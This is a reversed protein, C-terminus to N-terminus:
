DEIFLLLLGPICQNNKLAIIDNNSLNKRQKLLTQILNQVTQSNEEPIDSQTKNLHNTLTPIHITRCGISKLFEISVSYEQNQKLNDNLSIQPIFLTIIPLDSSLNTSRIYSENTLKMGKTTPICRITSLISKIKNTETENFQNWHQSIFSLLIMSTNENEFLYHQSEVLYFEILYKVSISSLSLRKQLDERAIHAVINSPLVNSPLPLSNINLSDYYEVKELKIINSQRSERYRIQQLVEKIYSKHNVDNTCLWRLLGVFEDLSLIIEHIKTSIIENNIEEIWRRSKLTKFFDNKVLEFPVLAIPLFTQIHKSNTLYAETSPILSLHKDSPSRRVPVLLDNNL